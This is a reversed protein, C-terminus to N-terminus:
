PTATLARAKEKNREVILRLTAEIQLLEERTFDAPNFTKKKVNKLEEAPDYDIPRVGARDLVALRALYRMRPDENPDEAQEILGRMMAPSALRAIVRSEHYAKTTPAVNRHTTGKAAQKRYRLLKKTGRELAAKAREDRADLIQQDTLALNGVVTASVAVEYSDM